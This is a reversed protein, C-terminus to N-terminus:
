IIHTERKKQPFSGFCDFLLLDVNAEKVISFTWFVFLVVYDSITNYLWELLGRIIFRILWWWFFFVGLFFGVLLPSEPPSREGCRWAGGAVSFSLALQQRRETPQSDVLHAPWGRALSKHVNCPQSCKLGWRPSVPGVAISHCGVFLLTFYCWNTM